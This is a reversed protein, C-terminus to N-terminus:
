GGFGFGVCAAEGLRALALNPEGLDAGGDELLDALVEVPREVVGTPLLCRLKLNFRLYSQLQHHSCVIQVGSSILHFHKLLNKKNNILFCDRPTCGWKLSTFM